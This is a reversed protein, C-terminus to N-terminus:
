KIATSIVQLVGVNFNTVYLTTGDAGVSINRPFANLGGTSRINVVSATAPNQVATLKPGSSSLTRGHYIM